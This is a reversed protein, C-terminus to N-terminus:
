YNSLLREENQRLYTHTKKNWQLTLFDSNKFHFNTPFVRNWKINFYEVFLYHRSRRVKWKEKSAEPTKRKADQVKILVGCNGSSLKEKHITVDRNSKTVVFFLPFFSM